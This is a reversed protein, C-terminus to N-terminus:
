RGPPRQRFLQGPQKEDLILRQWRHNGAQQCYVAMDAVTYFASSVSTLLQALTALEPRKRGISRWIIDPPSGQQDRAIQHEVIRVASNIFHKKAALMNIATTSLFVLLGFVVFYLTMRRAVSPRWFTYFCKVHDIAHM